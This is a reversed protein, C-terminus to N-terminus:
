RISVGLVEQIKKAAKKEWGPTYDICTRITKSIKEISNVDHKMFSAVLDRYYSPYEEEEGILDIILHAKECALIKKTDM